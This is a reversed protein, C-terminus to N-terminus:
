VQGGAMRVWRRRNEPAELVDAIRAELGGRDFRAAAVRGGARVRLGDEVMEIEVVPSFGRQGQLARWIDQRVQQAVRARGASPLRTEAVVDFRAPLQRAVTVRAGDRLVHWGKRSMAGSNGPWTEIAVNRNM